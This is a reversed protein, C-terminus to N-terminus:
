RGGPGQPPPGGPGGPGASPGGPLGGQQAQMQQQMQEIVARDQFDLMDIDFILAANNPIKTEDPSKAGYALSAPICVEYSGGKAMKMLALSFGKITGTVPFPAQQGADFEKGNKLKGKYNLLAIDTEKPSAGKGAVLTEILVGSPLIEVKGKGSLNSKSCGSAVPGITGWYAFAGSGLALVGLAAWLRVMSGKKIPHIPVASISM